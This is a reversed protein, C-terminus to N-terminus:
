LVNDNQPTGILDPRRLIETPLFTAVGGLNKAASLIVTRDSLM